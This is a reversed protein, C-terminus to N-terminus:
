ATIFRDAYIRTANEYEPGFDGNDKLKQIFGFLKAETMRHYQHDEVIYADWGEKYLAKAEATHTPPDFRAKNKADTYGDYFYANNMKETTM